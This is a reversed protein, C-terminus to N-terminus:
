SRHARENHHALTLSAVDVDATYHKGIQCDDCKVWWQNSVDDWGLTAGTLPHEARAQTIAKDRLTDVVERTHNHSHNNRDM